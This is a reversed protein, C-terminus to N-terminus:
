AIDLSAVSDAARVVSSSAGLYGMDKLIKIALEPDMYIRHELEWCRDCLKTGSYETPKGCLKCAIAM